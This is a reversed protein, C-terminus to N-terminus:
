SGGNDDWRLLSVWLAALVAFGLVLFRLFRWFERRRAKRLLAKDDNIPFGRAKALANIEGQIVPFAPSGEGVAAKFATLEKLRRLYGPEKNLLAITVAVTPGLTVTLVKMIADLSM